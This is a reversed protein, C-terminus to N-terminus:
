GNIVAYAPTTQGLADVVLCAVSRSMPSTSTVGTSSATPENFGTDEALWAYSYPATGGSASCTLPGAEFFLGNFSWNTTAPWISATLPPLAPAASYVQKWAGGQGVFVAAVPKWAGGAGVFPRAAKHAGGLGLSVGRTM